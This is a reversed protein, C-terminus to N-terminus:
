RKHGSFDTKDAGAKLLEHEPTPTPFTDPSWGAPLEPYPGFGYPSVAVEEALADTLAGDELLFADTSASVADNPLTGDSVESHTTINEMPNEVIDTTGDANQVNLTEATPTENEKELRQLFRAHREMDSKTTRLTNWSYLLSGGVVLVFFALGGQFWRSSLLDKLM